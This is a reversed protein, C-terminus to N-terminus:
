TQMIKTENLPSFPDKAELIVYCSTVTFTHKCNIKARYCQIPEITSVTGEIRGKATIFRLFSTYYMVLMSRM